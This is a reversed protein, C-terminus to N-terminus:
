RRTQITITSTAQNGAKDFATAALTHAGPALSVTLNLTPASVSAVQSGDIRLVLQTVGVNDAATVSVKVRRKTSAGQAPSLFSVTPALTDADPPTVGSAEYAGIDIAGDAPRPESMALHKYHRTPTLSVGSASAGPASGADIFPAGSTPRLDYAARDVFAPAASRYNSRELAGAQNSLPGIGAFVNNQLLVPTAVSAGVLVFTGGSSDDNLFTNNVVYLDQGPNSAGEMGYAVMNPNQNASPQEIVNGIIYASGANPLDIEYSPQGPTVGATGPPTSSFRNYLITNTQARSKLNHGVRADHSYNNRFTLSRANGIYLNHTYGTGFGNFAFESGEIVIDSATNVGSLIGNENDHLYSNRLTFHTGELRLAAGNQDAVTAGLMEVNEVLVNSGTIVWTGKGAANRGAADIRPRGNIGRITLNAAAVTCVDGAYTHGGAIEVIDGPAARTIASCPTPYAAGPAVSWTAASAPAILTVALCACAAAKVANAHFSFAFPNSTRM